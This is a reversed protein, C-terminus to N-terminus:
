PRPEMPGIPPEGTGAIVFRSDIDNRGWFGGAHCPIPREEFWYWDGDADQAVFAAWEPADKWDPKM